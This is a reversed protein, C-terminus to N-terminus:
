ATWELRNKNSVVSECVSTPKNVLKKLAKGKNSAM